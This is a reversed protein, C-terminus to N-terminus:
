DNSLEATPILTPMLIFEVPEKSSHFASSLTCIPLSEDVSEVPVQYQMSSLTSQVVIADVAISALISPVAKADPVISRAVPTLRKRKQSPEALPLLLLPANYQSSMAILSEEVEEWFEQGPAPSIM